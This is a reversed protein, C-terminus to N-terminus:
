RGRTQRAQEGELAQTALRVKLGAIEKYLTAVELRTDRHQVGFVFRVWRAFGHHLAREDFSRLQRQLSCAREAMQAHARRWRDLARRASSDLTSCLTAHVRQVCHFRMLACLDDRHRVRVWRAFMHGVALRDAFLCHHHLVIARQVVRAHVYSWRDLARRASSAQAACLLARVRHCLDIRAMEALDGTLRDM